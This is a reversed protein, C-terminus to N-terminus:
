GSQRLVELAASFDDPYPAEFSVEEGTLPHKFSLSRAHLAPRTILTIPLAPQPAARSGYLLDGAVSFGLEALHARIQHPRGTKPHAELLAHAVFRKLVRVLTEATKGRQFDIVTRHKRDGNARLPQLCVTEVWTPNGNVLAHYIKTVQRQEFQTNLSRHAEASRALLLVGSTDKDLRHVIWLRGYDPSLVSKLHPQTKDYGDPLTRLGWPKNIVLLSEDEWIVLDPPKFM